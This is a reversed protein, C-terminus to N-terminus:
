SNLQFSHPIYKWDVLKNLGNDYQAIIFIMDQPQGGLDLGEDFHLMLEKQIDGPQVTHAEGTVQDVLVYQTVKSQVQKKTRVQKKKAM